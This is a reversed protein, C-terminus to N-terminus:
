LTIIIKYFLAGLLLASGGSGEEKSIAPFVILAPGPGYALGFFRNIVNYDISLFPKAIHYIVWPGFPCIGALASGDGITAPQLLQGDMPFDVLYAM